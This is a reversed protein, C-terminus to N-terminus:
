LVVLRSMFMGSSNEITRRISDAPNMGFYIALFVIGFFCLGINLKAIYLSVYTAPKAFNVLLCGTIVPVDSLNGAEEVMGRGLGAVLNDVAILIAEASTM